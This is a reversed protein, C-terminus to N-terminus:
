SQQQQNLFGHAEINTSSDAIPALITSLQLAGRASAKCDESTFCEFSIPDEVKQETKDINFNKDLDDIAANFVANYVGQQAVEEIVNGITIGTARKIHDALTVVFERTPKNKFLEPLTKPRTGKKIGALKLFGGTQVYEIGASMLGYARSYM